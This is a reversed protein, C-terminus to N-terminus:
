AAFSSAARKIADITKGAHAPASALLAVAIAAAIWFPSQTQNM